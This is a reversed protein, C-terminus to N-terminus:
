FCVYLGCAAHRRTHAHMWTHMCLTYTRMYADTDTLIYTEKWRKQRRTSLADPYMIICWPDEEPALVSAEEQSLLIKDEQALLIM